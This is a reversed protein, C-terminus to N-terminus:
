NGLRWEEMVRFPQKGLRAFLARAAANRLGTGDHYVRAGMAKLCGLGRLMSEAGLGRGRFEPLVGLYHITSWGGSRYARLVRM